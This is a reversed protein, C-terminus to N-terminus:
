TANVAETYCDPCLVVPVQYGYLADQIPDVVLTGPNTGCTQCIGDAEMEPAM